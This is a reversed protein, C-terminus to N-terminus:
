LIKDQNENEEMRKIDFETKTIEAWRPSMPCDVAIVRKTGILIWYRM